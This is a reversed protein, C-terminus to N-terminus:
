SEDDESLPEKSDKDKKQHKCEESEVKAKAAQCEESNNWKSTPCNKTNEGIICFGLKM